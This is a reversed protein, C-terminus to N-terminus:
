PVLRYTVTQKLVRGDDRAVIATSQVRQLTRAFSALNASFLPPEGNGEGQPAEIFRMIRTYNPLEGSARYGAAYTVGPQTGAQMTLAVIPQLYEARNSIMLWRGRTAMVVPALGDLEWMGQRERWQVGIKASTYLGEVAKQIADRVAAGDWDAAGQVVITSDNTVFINDATRRSSQLQLAAQPKRSQLLTEIPEARFVLGPPEYPAADLRTELDSESGLQNADLSAGPAVRSAPGGSPGPWLVKRVILRSVFGPEPQSWARYLGSNRTLPLLGSVVNPDPATIPEQRLLVREERVEAASRVLDNMGAQFARMETVNGQVWYSRFSPNRALKEMNLAMRLDGAPGSARLAQEFWPERRVPTANAGSILALAGTLAEERTALILLDGVISFAATRAPKGGTKVYYATGAATRAQFKEKMKWLASEMARASPLRTLYVFELNSIDYIALASEGGAVSGLLTMDPALGMTQSYEEFSQQLRLYLRSRSFVQYNDSALWTKKEASGNWDTLLSSLNKAELYLMAGAPTLEALPKPTAANQAVLWAGVGLIALLLLKKM